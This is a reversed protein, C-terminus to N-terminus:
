YVGSFKQLLYYFVAFLLFAVVPKFDEYRAPKKDILGLINIVM